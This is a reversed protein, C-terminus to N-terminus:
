KSLMPNYNLTEEFYKKMRNLAGIISTRVAEYCVGEKEAIDHISIGDFYHQILREKQKPLLSDLAQDLFRQRELLVAPDTDLGPYEFLFEFYVYETCDMLRIVDHRIDRQILRNLELTGEKMTEGVAYPIIEYDSHKAVFDPHMEELQERSLSTAILWRPGKYKMGYEAIPDILIYEGPKKSSKYSSNYKRM